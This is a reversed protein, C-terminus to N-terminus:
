RPETIWLHNVRVDDFPVTKEDPNSCDYAETTIYCLLAPTNGLVRYGHWVGPPISILVRNNEGAYIVQKVRHTPSKKRADYLVVEANGSVFFWHDTQVEHCHFAKIVGPHALSFTFQGFKSLIDEDNRLVETLFGRNDCHLVLKKIGVGDIKGVKM